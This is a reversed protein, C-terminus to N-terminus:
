DGIAPIFPTQVLRIQSRIHIVYRSKKGCTFHLGKSYGHFKSPYSLFVSELLFGVMLYSKKGPVVKGISKELRCM